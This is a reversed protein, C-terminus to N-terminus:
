KTTPSFVVPVRWEKSNQSLGSPNDNSFILVGSSTASLSYTLQVAFPVFDETMWNGQARAQGSALVNGQKDLLKVPFVAEFFWSGRAQGSINMPSSVTQNPQPSSVIIESVQSPSPTSSPTPTTSNSINCGATPMSASPNGHKVWQGNQCLWTDEDGRLVLLVAAAAAIMVLIGIILTAKKSM